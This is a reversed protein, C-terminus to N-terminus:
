DKQGVRLHLTRLLQGFCQPQGNLRNVNFHIANAQPDGGTNAHSHFAEVLFGHLGNLLM